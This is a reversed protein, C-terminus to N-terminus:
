SVGEEIKGDAILQDILAKWAEYREGKMQFPRQKKPVAGAHLNITAEGFPGRVPPDGPPKTGFVTDKFEEFLEARMAEVGDSEVPKEAVVVSCTFHDAEDRRVILKAWERVEQEEAQFAVRKAPLPNLRMQSIYHVVLETAMSDPLECLYRVLKEPVRYKQNRTATMHLGGLLQRHGKRGNPRDVLNPCTAMDCVRGELTAILVDGWVRTPKQYGWDSFQCYDVDVYPIGAMYPRKPLLGTRPNELFWRKPQFYQVIELTRRVLSDAYALNRPATTRARSFHECPPSCFIVDFYGPPYAARYDWELVDVVITPKFSPARDVSTVEYGEMEFIRGVSGTGSFLDLMRKPPDETAELASRDLSVPVEGQSPSSAKPVPGYFAEWQSIAVEGGESANQTPMCSPTMSSGQPLPGYWAEWQSIHDVAVSKTLQPSPLEPITSVGNGTRPLTAQGISEQPRWAPCFICKSFVSKSDFEKRPGKDIRLAWMGWLTGPCAKGEVEFLRTGKEIYVRRAAMGVLRKVWPKSWAPCLVLAAGTHATLKAEAEPWLSWPPNMWLVEDRSWEMKLADQEETFHKPCRANNHTAFCDLTPTLGLHQCIDRFFHWRVTYEESVHPEKNRDIAQVQPFPQGPGGSDKLGPVWVVEHNSDHVMLGNRRPIVDAMVTALWEFSIIMDVCIDADYAVVPLSLVRRGRTDMDVGDLELHGALEMKGGMLTTQNAALFRMPKLAIRFYDRSLLQRRVLNVESGTDVLMVLPIPTLGPVALHAQVLLRTRPSKALNTQANDSIEVPEM